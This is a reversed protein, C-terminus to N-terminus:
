VADSRCQEDDAVDLLSTALRAAEVLWAEREAPTASSMPGALLRVVPTGGLYAGVCRRWILDLPDGFVEAEREVTTDGTNLVIVGKLRLLPTPLGEGSSLRYAVGPVLVRDIWGAVIAPPKGWWNPHAVVLHDAETIERRHARVLPDTSSTIAGEAGMGATFAEDPPAVPSFGEAYLDHKTVTGHPAALTRSAQDALAHAFSGPAPSGVITLVNAM